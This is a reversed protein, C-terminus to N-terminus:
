AQTTLDFGKSVPPGVFYETIRAALAQTEPKSMTANQDEQSEWVTVACAQNTDETAGGGLYQKLGKQQQYLPVLEERVLRRVVEASGPKIEAQTISFFM